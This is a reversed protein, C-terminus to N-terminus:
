SETLIVSGKSYFYDKFIPTQQYEHFYNSDNAQLLKMAKEAKSHIRTVVREIVYKVYLVEEENTCLQVMESIYQTDSGKSCMERQLTLM